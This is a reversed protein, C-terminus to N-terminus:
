EKEYPNPPSTIYQNIGVKLYIYKQKIKDIKALINRSTPQVKWLHDIYDVIDFEEIVAYTEGNSEFYFKAKGNMGNELGVFYDVSKKPLTYSTSTYIVNELKIRKHVHLAMNSLNVEKLSEINFVRMSKETVLNSRGLLKNESVDSEAKQENMRHNVVSKSLCYKSSAQLLVDTTGNVKKLLVGNNREFPFASNCWMPGLDRVSDTLHKLLHVNMVMSEKGFLKQHQEVFRFLLKEAEDIEPRAITSKLLIYVAASLLRVHKVYVDPVCGPLCVPFYYLLMSRFESAKFDSRHILSRPKRVVESNPKLALIRANLLIRKKNSIYFNRNSFRTNCFFDILGKQIGLLVCHM